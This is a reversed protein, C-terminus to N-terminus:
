LLELVSLFCLISTHATSVTNGPSDVVSDMFNLYKTVLTEVPAEAFNSMATGLTKSLQQSVRARLEQDTTAQASIQALAALSEIQEGYERGLRKLTEADAETRKNYTDITLGRYEAKYRDWVVDYPDKEGERSFIPEAPRAMVISNKEFWTVIDSLVLLRQRRSTEQEEAWDQLIRASMDSKEEESLSMGYQKYLEGVVNGILASQEEGNARILGANIRSQIKPDIAALLPDQESPSKVIGLSALFAKQEPTISAFEPPLKDPSSGIFRGDKGLSILYERLDRQTKTYEEDIRYSEVAAISWPIHGKEYKSHVGELQAAFLKPLEQYTRLVSLISEASQESGNAGYDNYNELTKHAKELDANPSDIVPSSLATLYTKLKALNERDRSEKDKAEDSPVGIRRDVQKTDPPTDPPSQTTSSRNPHQYGTISVLDGDKCFAIGQLAGTKNETWGGTCKTGSSFSVAFDNEKKGDLLRLTERDSTTFDEGKRGTVGSEALGKPGFRTITPGDCWAPQCQVASVVFINAWTITVLKRGVITLHAM